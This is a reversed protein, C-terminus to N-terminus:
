SGCARSFARFFPPMPQPKRTRGPRPQAAQSSRQPDIEVSTLSSGAVRAADRLV